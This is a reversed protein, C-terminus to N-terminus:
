CINMIMGPWNLRKLINSACRNINIALLIFHGFKRLEAYQEDNDLMFKIARFNYLGDDTAHYSSGRESLSCQLVSLTAEEAVCM